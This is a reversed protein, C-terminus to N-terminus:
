QKVERVTLTRTTSAVEVSWIAKHLAPLHEPTITVQLKHLHSTMSNNPPGYRGLWWGKFHSPDRRPGPRCLVKPPRLRLLCQLSFLVESVGTLILPINRCTLSNWIFYHDKKLLVSINKNFNMAVILLYMIEHIEISFLQLFKGFKFM